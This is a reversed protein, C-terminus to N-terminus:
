TKLGVMTGPCAPLSAMGTGKCKQQQMISMWSSSKPVSDRSLTSCRFESAVPAEKGKTVMTTAHTIGHRLTM